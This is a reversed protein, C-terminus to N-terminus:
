ATLPPTIFQQSIKGEADRLTIQDIEGGEAYDLVEYYLTSGDDQLSLRWSDIDSVATFQDDRSGDPNLRALAGTFDGAVLIKRNPLVVVKRIFNATGLAADFTNDVSGDENLRTLRHKAEGTADPVTAGVVFKGDEQRAISVIWPPWAAAAVGGIQPNFSEVLKGNSELLAIGNRPSGQIHIFSGWVLIKGGPMTMSGEILSYPAAQTWEVGADFTPDLIIGPREAADSSFVALVGALCMSLKITRM